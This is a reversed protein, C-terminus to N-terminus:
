DPAPREVHDIVTVDVPGRASKLKLGLQERLAELFTPGMDEVQPDPPQASDPALSWEVSMDFAGSLGTRDLVPRDIGSFPNMLFDAIRATTVGNAVIRGRGAVRAPIPGISDCPMVPIQLSSEPACSGGSAHRLLQPGTQGSRALILDFVPQTRRETHIRLRFREALLSRMMARMSDKTPNGPARAEIDFREDSLWEPAKALRPDHERLKFAFQLYVMLPENTAAFLTGPAYADGPGLAFRSTAPADSRNVRVSAVDFALTRAASAVQARPTAANM